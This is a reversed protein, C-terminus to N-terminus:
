HCYFTKGVLLGYPIVSHKFIAMMIIVMYHYGITKIIYIYGDNNFIYILRKNKAMVKQGYVSFLGPSIGFRLLDDRASPIPHM